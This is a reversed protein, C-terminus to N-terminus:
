NAGIIKGNVIHKGIHVRYFLVAHNMNNYQVVNGKGKILNVKRESLLQGNANYMEITGIGEEPSEIRLTFSGRHPNPYVTSKLVDIVPSQIVESVVPSASSNRSTVPVVPSM